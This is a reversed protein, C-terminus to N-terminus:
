NECSTENSLCLSIAYVFIAVKLDIALGLSEECSQVADMYKSLALKSRGVGFCAKAEALRDRAHIDIRRFYQLAINFHLLAKDFSALKELCAGCKYHLLGNMEIYEPQDLVVNTDMVDQIIALAKEVSQQFDPADTRSGLLVDARNLKTVMHAPLTPSQVTSEVNNRLGLRCKKKRETSASRDEEGPTTPQSNGHPGKYTGATGDAQIPLPTQKMDRVYGPQLEESCKLLDGLMLEADNQIDQRLHHAELLKRGGMSVVDRDIRGLEEEFRLVERWKNLCSHLRRHLMGHIATKMITRSKRSLTFLGLYSLAYLMLLLVTYM